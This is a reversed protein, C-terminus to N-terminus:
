INHLVAYNRAKMQIQIQTQLRSWSVKYMKMPTNTYKHIQIQLHRHSCTGQSYVEAEQCGNHGLHRSGREVVLKMNSRLYWFYWTGSSSKLAAKSAGSTSEFVIVLFLPVM